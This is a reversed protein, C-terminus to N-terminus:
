VSIPYSTLLIRAEAVLKPTPNKNLEGVLGKIERQLGRDSGGNLNELIHALGAMNSLNRVLSEVSYPTKGLVKVLDYVM